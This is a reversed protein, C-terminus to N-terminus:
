LGAERLSAPLEHPPVQTGPPPPTQTGTPETLETMRGKGETGRRGVRRAGARRAGARGTWGPGAKGRRLGRAVNVGSALPYSLDAEGDLALSLLFRIASLIM